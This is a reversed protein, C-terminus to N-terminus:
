VYRVVEVCFELFERHVLVKGQILQYDLQRLFPQQVDVLHFKGRKVIPLSVGLDRELWHEVTDAQGGGESFLM